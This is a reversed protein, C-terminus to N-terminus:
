RSARGGRLHEPFRNMNPPSMSRKCWESPLKNANAEGVISCTRSCRPRSEWIAESACIHQSPTWNIHTEMSNSYVWLALHLLDDIPWTSKTVGAFPVRMAERRPRKWIGPSPSVRHAGGKPKIRRSCLDQRLGSYDLHANVNVRTAGFDPPKM